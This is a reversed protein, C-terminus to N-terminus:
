IKQLQIWIKKWLFYGIVLLAGLFFGILAFKIWSSRLVKLPLVPQDLYQILPTDRMLATKASELSRTLEIYSARLIQIDTQQRERTVMPLQRNPNFFADAFEARGYLAINYAHRISDTRQQIFDVNMKARETKKEIYYQTVTHMLEELFFKSFLEHTSTCLVSIITTGKGKKDIKLNRDILTEYMSRMIGNGFLAEQKDTKKALFDLHYFRSKKMWKERYDLSDLFFDALLVNKGEVNVTSRLTKEILLRSMMLEAINTPSSFVSGADSGLGLEESLQSIGSKPSQTAEEDLVFTMEAVYQPKKTLAYAAGAIGFVLAVALIILWKSLIYRGLGQVQLIFRRPSFEQYERPQEQDSRNSTM